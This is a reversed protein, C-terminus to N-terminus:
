YLSLLETEPTYNNVGTLTDYSIAGDTFYIAVLLLIIAAVGSLIVYRFIKNLSQYSGQNLKDMVKDAFGNVFSASFNNLDKRMKEIEAKETQLEVSNKLANNLLKQEDASLKRDFSQYLLTKIDDM